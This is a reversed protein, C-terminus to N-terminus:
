SSNEPQQGLRSSPIGVVFFIPHPFIGSRGVEWQYTDSDRVKAIITRWEKRTYSRLCSVAGDWAYALPLVTQLLLPASSFVFLTVWIFFSIKECTGPIIYTFFLFKFSFPRLLPTFLLAVPIPVIGFLLMSLMNRNTYEFFAIAEGKDVADQIIAQLAEPTFHHAASCMTRFGKFHSPVNTADLSRREFSVYPSAIREMSALDPSIDTLMAQVPFSFTKRLLEVITPCPGGSGLEFFFFFYFIAFLFSHFSGSCLDIISEDKAEKLVRYLVPTLKNVM